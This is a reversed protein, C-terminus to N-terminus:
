HNESLEGPVPDGQAADYMLWLELTAMFAVAAGVAISFHMASTHTFGLVWPSVILWVGALLNTWEEWYAVAFMAALSIVAIAAGSARLDIAATGNRHAFFWPSVFLLVALVLNYLDLISEARWKRM